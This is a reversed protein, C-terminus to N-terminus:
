IKKYMLANEQKVVNVVDKSFIKIIKLIGSSLQVIGLSLLAAPFQCRSRFSVAIVVMVLKEAVASRM